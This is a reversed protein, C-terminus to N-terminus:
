LASMNMETLELIQKGLRLVINRLVFVFGKLISCNVTINNQLYWQM